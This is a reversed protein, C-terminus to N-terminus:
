ERNEAAVGCVNLSLGNPFRITTIPLTCASCHTHLFPLDLLQSTAVAEEFCATCIAHECPVLVGSAPLQCHVCFKDPILLKRTKALDQQLQSSQQQLKLVEALDTTLRQVRAAAEAKVAALRTTSEMLMQTQRATQTSQKDLCAAIDLDLQELEATQRRREDLAELTQKVARSTTRLEDDLLGHEMKFKDLNMPASTQALSALCTPLNNVFSQLKIRLGVHPLFVLTKDVLAVLEDMKAATEGVANAADKLADAVAQNDMLSSDLDLLDEQEFRLAELACIIPRVSLSM